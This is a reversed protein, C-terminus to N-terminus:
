LPRLPFDQHSISCVVLHSIMIDSNFNIPVETQEM